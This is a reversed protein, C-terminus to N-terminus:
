RSYTNAEKREYGVEYFKIWLENPPRIAYALPGKLNM